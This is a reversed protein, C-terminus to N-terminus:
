KTELPCGSLASLKQLSKWGSVRTGDPFDWAPIGNVGEKKCVAVQPNEGDKHCEIRPLLEAADGFVEEQKKCYPCWWTAYYKVGKDFLCQAIAEKDIASENTEAAFAALTPVALALGLLVARLISKKM